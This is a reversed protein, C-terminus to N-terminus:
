GGAALVVAADNKGPYGGDLRKDLATSDRTITVQSPQYGKVLFLHMKSRMYHLTTWSKFDELGWTSIHAEAAHGEWDDQVCTDPYIVCIYGSRYILFNILDVGISKRMHEICDGFIVLDFRLRPSHIMCIADEIIVEDYITALNFQRVYAPDIEIATLHTSFNEQAAVRRALTGYKGAGAGIDCIRLPKLLKFLTRVYDDFTNYSFPMIAIGGNMSSAGVRGFCGLESTSAKGENSTEKSAAVPSFFL